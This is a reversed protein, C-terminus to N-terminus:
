TDDGAAHLPSGSLLLATVTKAMLLTCPACVRRPTPLALPSTSMTSAAFPTCVALMAPHLASALLALIVPRANRGVVSSCPHAHLFPHFGTAHSGCWPLPVAILSLLFGVDFLVLSQELHM